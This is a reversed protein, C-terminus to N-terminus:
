DGGDIHSAHAQKGIKGAVAQARELFIAAVVVQAGDRAFREATAGGIGGGGGTVIAVKGELRNMRSERRHSIMSARMSRRADDHLREIRGHVITANEQPGLM